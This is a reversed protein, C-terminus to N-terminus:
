KGRLREEMNRNIRDKKKIETKQGEGGGGKEERTNPQAVAAVAVLGVAVIGIYDGHLRLWDASGVASRYQKVYINNYTLRDGIQVFQLTSKKSLQAPIKLFDIPALFRPPIPNDDRGALSCLSASNM